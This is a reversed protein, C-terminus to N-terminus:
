PYPGIPVSRQHVDFIMVSQLAKQLCGPRIAVGAGPRADLRDDQGLLAVGGRLDSARQAEAAAGDLRPHGGVVPTAQLGQRIARMGAAPRDQRVVLLASEQLPDFGRRTGLVPDALQPAGVDAANEVVLEGGSVSEVPDVLQEVPEVVVVQHGPGLVGVGVGLRLREELLDDDLLDRGDGLLVGILLDLDPVVVLRSEPLLPRDRPDPRSAARPRAPTLCFPRSDSYTSVAAQAALPAATPSIMGSNFVATIM